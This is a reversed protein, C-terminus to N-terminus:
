RRTSYQYEELWGWANTNAINEPPEEKETIWNYLDPDNECLIADYEALETATFHPVHAQAFEGLIVDMEKTGRHMSRFILRKRKKELSENETGVVEM